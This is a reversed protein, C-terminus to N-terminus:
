FNNELTCTPESCFFVGCGCCVKLIASVLHFDAVFIKSKPVVILSNFVGLLRLKINWGLGRILGSLIGGIDLWVKGKYCVRAVVRIISKGKKCEWVCTGVKLIVYAPGTECM